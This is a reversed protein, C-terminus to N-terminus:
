EGEKPLPISPIYHIKRFQGLPAFHIGRSELATLLWDLKDAMDAEVAVKVANDDKITPKMDVAPKNEAAKVLAVAIPEVPHAIPIALISGFPISAAYPVAAEPNTIAEMRVRVNEKVAYPIGAAKVSKLIEDGYQLKPGRFFQPSSGSLMVLVKQARCIQIIQEEVPQKDLGTVGVFTYNGLEQGADRILQITEPQDVANTGEAFFVAPVKHKALVDIFRAALPREPLGDFLIAVAPVDGPLPTVVEAPKNDTKERAAEAAAIEEAAQYTESLDTIDIAPHPQEIVHDRVYILIGIVVALVLLVVIGLKKYSM